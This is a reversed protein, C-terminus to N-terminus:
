LLFFGLLGIAIGILGGVLVDKTFHIGAVVRVVAIMATMILFVVGLAPWLYYFTMAIVGACTMHRSPFSHGSKNKQILPHIDWVEYPRPRNLGHRVVTCGLFAIAPVIICLLLRSDRHFALYLLAIPYAAYFILPLWRNLIRLLRYCIPRKRFWTEIQHYQTCTM